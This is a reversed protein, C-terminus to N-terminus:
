KIKYVYKVMGQIGFLYINPWSAPPQNSYEEELSNQIYTWVKDSYYYSEYLFAEVDKQLKSINKSQTAHRNEHILTLIDGMSYSITTSIFVDGEHIKVTEGENTANLLLNKILYTIKPTTKLLIYDLDFKIKEFNNKTRQMESINQDIKEKKKNSVSGNLLKLKENEIQNNIKDIKGNIDKCLYKFDDCANKDWQGNKDVFSNDNGNIDVLWIPNNNLCAYNSLSPNPRSDLNFRIGLRSDYQWFEATYSNGDGAVEDDKEKANFGYRYAVSSFGRNAM